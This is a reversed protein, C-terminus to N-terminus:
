SMSPGPPASRSVETEPNPFASSPLLLLLLRWFTQLVDPVRAGTPVSLLGSVRSDPWNRTTAQPGSIEKAFSQCGLDSRLVSSPPLRDRGVTTYDTQLNEGEIMVNSSDHDLFQYCRWWNPINKRRVITVSCLYRFLERCYHCNVTVLRRCVMRSICPNSCICRM